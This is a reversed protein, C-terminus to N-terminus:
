IVWGIIKLDYNNELNQSIKQQDNKLYYNNRSNASFSYFSSYSYELEFGDPSKQNGDLKYKKGEEFSIQTSKNESVKHLFLTQSEETKYCFPVEYENCPMRKESLKNDVVLYLTKYNGVFGVSYIYDYKLQIKSSPLYILLGIIVLFTVPVLFVLLLSIKKSM